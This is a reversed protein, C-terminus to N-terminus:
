GQSRLTFYRFAIHLEATSCFDTKPNEFSTFTKGKPYDIGVYYYHDDGKSLYVGNRSEVVQTITIERMAPLTTDESARDCKGGGLSHPWAYAPCRCVRTAKM